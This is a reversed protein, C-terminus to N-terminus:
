VKVFLIKGTQISEQTKNKRPFFKKDKWPFALKFFISKCQVKTCHTWSKRCYDCVTPSVQGVKSKTEFGAFKSLCQFKTLLVQSQNEMELLRGSQLWTSRLMKGLYKKWMELALPYLLARMHPTIDLATNYYHCKLSERYQLLVWAIWSRSYNNSNTLIHPWIKDVSDNVSFLLIFMLYLLSELPRLNHM